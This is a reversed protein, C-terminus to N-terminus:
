PLVVAENRNRIWIPGSASAVDNWDAQLRTQLGPYGSFAYILRGSQGDKWEWALHTSDPKGNLLLIPKPRNSGFDYAVSQTDAATLLRVLVTDRANEGLRLSDGIAYHVWLSPGMAQQLPPLNWERGSVLSKGQKAALRIRIPNDNGIRLSPLGFNM